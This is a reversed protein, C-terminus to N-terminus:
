QHQKCSKELRRNISGSCWGRYKMAEVVRKVALVYATARLSLGIEKKLNMLTKFSELMKQDMRQIVEAQGLRVGQLNQVWEFYSVIVGGANALIDPVVLIGNEELIMNGTPTIPGNAAEVVFKAKVNKANEGHIQNEMAAPILLTVDLGLLEENSILTGGKEHYGELTKHSSADIYLVLQEISIGQPNYYGGSIDSVAVVKCGAQALRVASWLGVKGFGQIAVSASTPDISNQKLLELAIVAVGYGTSERRGLSGDLSIPKGTVVAPQFSGTVKSYEDALWSMTLENTNVDPAPIDKMPGIFPIIADTYKRTVKELENQSLTAPNCTIGGKAGGYPIDVVSCKWTMLSALAQTEGLSVNHHYRIGGKYPGRASSHQVRCGTFIQTSGDDMTIPFTVKLEKEPNELITKMNDDLKLHKVAVSFYRNVNAALDTEKTKLAEELIMIAREM